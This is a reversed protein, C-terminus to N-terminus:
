KNYSGSLIVANYSANSVTKVFHPCRFLQTNAINVSPSYWICNGDVDKAELKQNVVKFYDSADSLTAASVDILWNCGSVDLVGGAAGKGDQSSFDELYIDETELVANTGASATLNSCQANIQHSFVVFLFALILSFCSRM